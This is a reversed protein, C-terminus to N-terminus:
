DTKVIVNDEVSSISSLPLFYKKDFITQIMMKGKRIDISSIKGLFTGNESIVEKGEIKMETIIEKRYWNILSSVLYGMIMSIFISGLFAGFDIYPETMNVIWRSGILLVFTTLGFACAYFIYKTAIYKKKEIIADITKGLLILVLGIYFVWLTSELMFAASKEVSLNLSIGRHFSQYGVFIAIGFIALAGIYGIWSTREFSFSFERIVGLILEDIWFARFLLYAGVIIGVAQWGYGFLSSLSLLLLLIAPIGLIIKAFYPDKLKELIVFYTKELEKAQKIFVVKTSDIKLRSSVIPLVEEDSAGDTVIIASVPNLESIVKELQATINRDAFYGLKKDGSLTVVEVSQGEKRMQDFLKVACFITNSDSDEPDALALSTAGELNSKRGILPGSVGGKEFLDNDRDICLILIPREM